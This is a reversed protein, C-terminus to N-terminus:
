GKGLDVPDAIPGSFNGADECYKRLEDFLDPRGDPPPALLASLLRLVAEPTCAAPKGDEIANKWGVVVHAAVIEATEARGKDLQEPTLKGRGAGRATMANVRKILANWYPKNGEGAHKVVLVVNPADIVTAIGLDYERTAEVPVSAHKFSFGM